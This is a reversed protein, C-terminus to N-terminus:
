DDLHANISAISFAKREGFLVARCHQGPLISSTRAAVLHLAQRVDGHTSCVKCEEDQKEKV